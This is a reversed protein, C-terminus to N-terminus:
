AICVRRNGSKVLLMHVDGIARETFGGECYCFYYEWMRIFANNHGLAKIKEINVFFNERWRALTIAYHPGIDELNFLRMDTVKTASNLLATVSPICSGPFIYRQIFDVSNKAQHYRQDAITIAQLLMAGEPKLLDSCKAFFTDYYQHGVAEIMEISVLKDYRGELDRYDSLLVTIRNQLGAANVREVALNYQEKSITTTTIRCGFERAAYLAFGGWGTGIELVHDTARLDLKHCITQLRTRQAEALSMTTDTFIASSYMMSEDLFLKFFDNGLDYHAAINKRSGSRTNRNFWHLGKQLPVAIRALGGELQELVSMNRVFLRVLDTLQETSWYGEMYAEGAGISGGFGLDGYFRQDHVRVAVGVPFAETLQGFCTINDGDILTLQGERLRELRQLVARKALSDLFHPQQSTAPENRRTSEFHATPANM